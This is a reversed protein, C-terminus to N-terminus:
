SKIFDIYRKIVKETTFNNSYEISKEGFEKIKEKNNILYSLKEEFDKLSNCLFGNKNHRVQDQNGGKNTALIPCGSMMGEAVVRAWPERRRWKIFFLFIDINKLYDKVSISYEKRIIVNDFQELIQAYTSPVGMFDWVIQDKYKENIKRVLKINEKDFKYGWPKSHKGIRIRSSFNKTKSITAPDIPSELIFKPINRIKNYKEKTEIDNYYDRNACIIRLDPCHEYITYLRCSPKIVYNFLFVMQPIKSLDIFFTHRPEKHKWCRQGEWYCRRPFSYSDTNIILLSDVEYIKQPTPNIGQFINEIIEVQPDILKRIKKNFQKECLICCAHNTYRSIGNAMAAARHESGGSSGLKSFIGIRM